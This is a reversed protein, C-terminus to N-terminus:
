REVFAKSSVPSERMRRAAERAARKPNLRKKQKTDVVVAVTQRDLIRGLDELVFELVEKDSPESGFIHRSAFLGEETTREVLGIWYQGDYFITLNM